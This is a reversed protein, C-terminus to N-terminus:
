SQAKIKSYEKNAENYLVSFSHISMNRDIQMELVEQTFKIHMEFGTFDDNNEEKVDEKPTNEMIKYKLRLIESDIPKIAADRQNNQAELDAKSDVISPYDLFLKRYIAKTNDLAQIKGKVNDKIQYCLLLNNKVNLCADMRMRLSNVLVKQQLKDGSEKDGGFLVRLEETFDNYAKIALAKRSKSGICILMHNNTM